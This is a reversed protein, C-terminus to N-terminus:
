VKVYQLWFSFMIFYLWPVDIYDADFDLLISHIIFPVGRILDLLMYEQIERSKIWRNYTSEAVLRLSLSTNKLDIEM